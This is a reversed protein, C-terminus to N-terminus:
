PESSTNLIKGRKIVASPSALQYTYKNFPLSAPTINSAPIQALVMQKLKEASEKDEFSTPNSAKALASQPDAIMAVNTTHGAEIKKTSSCLIVEFADGNNEMVIRDPLIKALKYEGIKEGIRVTQTEKEGKRLPKGLNFVIASQYDEGIAVGNLTIQPRVISQLTGAKAPTPFDKREPSFINKEAIESPFKSSASPKELFSPTEQRIVSEAAAGKPVLCDIPQTWVEYNKIALFIALCVLLLNLDGYKLSKRM